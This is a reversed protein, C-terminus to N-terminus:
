TVSILSLLKAIEITLIDSVRGIKNVINKPIMASLVSLLTFIIILVNHSRTSSYKNTATTIFKLGEIIITM